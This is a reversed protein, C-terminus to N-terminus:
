APAPTVHPVIGEINAVPYVKPEWDQPAEVQPVFQLCPPYIFMPIVSEAETACCTSHDLTVKLDYTIQILSGLVTPQMHEAMFTQNKNLKM